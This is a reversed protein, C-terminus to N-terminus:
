NLSTFPIEDLRLILPIPTTHQFNFSISPWIKDFSLDLCYIHRFIQKAEKLREAISLRVGLIFLSLPTELSTTTYRSGLNRDFGSCQTKM